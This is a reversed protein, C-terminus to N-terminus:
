VPVQFDEHLRAAAPNLNASLGQLVIITKKLAEGSGVGLHQGDDLCIGVTVRQPNAGWGRHAGSRAPQADGAYFFPNGRARYAGTRFDADQDDTANEGSLGRSQDCVAQGGNGPLRPLEILQLKGPPSGPSCGARNGNVEFDIGAHAPLP